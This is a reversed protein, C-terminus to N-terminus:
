LIFCELIRFGTATELHVVRIAAPVLVCDGTKVDLVGRGYDLRYAGHVCVHIVFSDFSYHRVVPEAYDLVNTTFHECSVVRVPTNLQKRYLSKYERYFSFDLAALADDVHLTRRRGDADARDYDHIRYTVDSAQQIEAVLVGKGIAHIRGAPLYFVDGAEAPEENLIDRVRGAALRDRCAAASVPQNFGAVLTAGRDAQIVYWMETKGPSGHREAALADGPHVQVSLDDAADIFKVLLPFRNGFREYVSQGVLAGRYTEVLAPLPMGALAGHRVVSADSPLGSIEWSEGCPSGPPVDKGLHTSLKRGGWLKYKYISTFTLPYLKTM